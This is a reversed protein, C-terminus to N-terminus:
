GVDRATRVADEMSADRVPVFPIVDVAGMRPHRGEHRNLDIRAVAVRAAAVAAEAVAAPGGVFTVVSRNHDPDMELDLFRAGPVAQVAAVIEDCVERRRGESFNPVCELLM